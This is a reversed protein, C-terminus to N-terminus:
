SAVGSVRVTRSISTPWLTRTVVSNDGVYGGPVCQLFKILLAPMYFLIQAIDFRRQAHAHQAAFCWLHNLFLHPYVRHAWLRIRIIIGSAADSDSMSGLCNLKLCLKCSHRIHRCCEFPRSSRSPRLIKSRSVISFVTPCRGPLTSGRMTLRHRFDKGKSVFGLDSSRSASFYM